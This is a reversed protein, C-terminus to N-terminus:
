RKKYRTLLEFVIGTVIGVVLGALHLEAFGSLGIVWALASVVIWWGALPVWRRLILWQFSGM